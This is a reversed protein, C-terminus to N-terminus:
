ERTHRGTGSSGDGERSGTDPACPLHLGFVSGQGISSELTVRGGHREVIDKVLSLGLGFGPQAAQTSVRAFPEFLRARDDPQIGPGTDAVEVWAEDGRRGTRIAIRAMSPTHKIANSVLNGLAEKLLLEDGRVVLPQGETELTLEHSTKSAPTKYEEAVVAAIRNLDCDDRKLEEQSSLRRYGLIGETLETMRGIADRITELWRAEKGDLPGLADALLDVYGSMHTLPGRLDHAAMSMIADKFDNLEHLSEVLRANRIAIAAQTALLLLLEADESSFVRPSAGAIVLVGLFEDKWRVPAGLMRVPEAGKRSADGVALDGSQNEIVAQGTELVKEALCRSLEATTGVPPSPVAVSVSQELPGNAGRCLYIMGSMGGLLEVAWSVISRLLASQKLEATMELAVERLAELQFTRRNIEEQSRKRETINEIIGDHCVIRGDTDRVARATLSVWVPSGDKRRLEVEFDSVVGEAHLRSVFEERREPIVYTGSAAVGVLEKPSDYGLMEALAPNLSVITGDPTARFVGVPINEQLTRYRKESQRVKEEAQRRATIDEAVKVFHTVVGDADKIASIRADEWYEEGSKRRNHFEGRWVSDSAVAHWTSSYIRLPREGSGLIRPSLGLVEEPAYGTVETFRPNVYEIVGESDTIVIISPSQEVARTLKRLTDEASRREAGARGTGDVRRRM